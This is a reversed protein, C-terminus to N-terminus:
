KKKVFNYIEIETKIRNLELYCKSTEKRCVINVEWIIRKLKLNIKVWFKEHRWENM